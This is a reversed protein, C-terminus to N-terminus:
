VCSFSRRELPWQGVPMLGADSWTYVSLTKAGEGSSAAFVNGERSASILRFPIPESQYLPTKDAGKDRVDLVELVCLGPM